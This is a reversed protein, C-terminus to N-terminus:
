SDQLAQKVAEKPRAGAFSGTVKGDRIVMVTPISKIRYTASIKPNADVDVKVFDFKKEEESLEELVPSLMRCPGCWTAWFDVVIPKKKSAELVDEAFSKDTVEKLKSM